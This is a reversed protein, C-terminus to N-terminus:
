AIGTPRPRLRRRRARRLLGGAGALPVIAAAPPPPPATTTTTPPPAIDVTVTGINSDQNGDTVAFSFHDSTTGDSPATYTFSGDKHLNIDGVGKTKLWFYLSDGEPDSALNSISGEVTQGPSVPPQGAEPARGDRVRPAGNPDVTVDVTAPPSVDGDNDVIVYKFSDPGAFSGKPATYLVKGGDRKATGKSATTIEAAETPNGQDDVFKVLSVGDPSDDNAVVDVVTSRGARVKVTDQATQPVNDVGTVTVTVKGTASDDDNDVVKYTFTDEGNYHKEPVYAITHDANVSAKGHGPGPGVTITKLGDGLGTDNALVPIQLPTDETGTATDPVAAPQDDVAKINVNVRGTVTNGVDDSVTYTFFDTGNYDPNPTYAIGRGSVVATGRLPTGVGKLTLPGGDPDRDNGLVDITVPVDEDIGVVDDVAVPPEGGNVASMAAIRTNLRM